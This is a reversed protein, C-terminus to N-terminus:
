LFCMDIFVTLFGQVVGLGNARMILTRWPSIFLIAVESDILVNTIGFVLGGRTRPAQLTKDGERTNFIQPNWYPIVYRIWKVCPGQSKWFCELM